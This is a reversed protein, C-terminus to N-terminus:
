PETRTTIKVEYNSNGQQFVQNAALINNYTYGNPTLEFHIDKVETTTSVTNCFTGNVPQNSIYNSASAYLKLNGTKLAAVGNSPADQPAMKIFPQTHNFAILRSEHPAFTSNFQINGYEWPMYFYCGGTGWNGWTPLTTVPGITSNMNGYPQANFTLVENVLMNSVTTMPQAQDATVKGTVDVWAGNIYMMTVLPNGTQDYYEAIPVGEFWVGTDSANVPLDPITGNINHDASFDRIEYPNLPGNLIGSENSIRPDLMRAQTLAFLCQPYPEPTTDNVDFYVDPMWTVNVWKGDLYVGNAVGGFYRGAPISGAPTYGYDLIRGGLISQRTTIDQAAAFTVEYLTAPQDSPNTVNLVVNYTVNTWPYTETHNLSGDPNSFEQTHIYDTTNFNAYVIDVSFPAKPGEPVNPYPQVNVPVILMPAAYAIGFGFALVAILVLSLEKKMKEGVPSM